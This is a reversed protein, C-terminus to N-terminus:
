NGGFAQQAPVWRPEETYCAFKSSVNLFFDCDGQMGQDLVKYEEVDRDCFWRVRFEGQRGDSCKDGNWYHFSWHPPDSNERIIPHANGNEWVGLNHDCTGTARNEVIAMTEGEGQQWCHLDNSCVSYYFEYGAQAQARIVTGKLKELDLQHYDGKSDQEKWQCNANYKNPEVCALTSKISYYYNCTSSEQVAEIYALAENNVDNCHYYVTTRRPEQTSSCLEGDNYHFAWSEGVYSYEARDHHDVSLYHTCQNEGQKFQAANGYFNANGQPCQLGNRCPTYYYFHDPAEYELTWRSISTLNLVYPEKSYPSQYQYVCQDVQGYASAALAAFLVSKM